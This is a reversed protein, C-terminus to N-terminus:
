RPHVGSERRSRGRAHEPRRRNGDDRRNRRAPQHAPRHYPTTSQRQSRGSTAVGGHALMLVDINEDPQMPSAVGIPFSISSADITCIAVDGGADVLAPGFEALRRVAEDAAWGKAVGGLDMRVGPPLRVARREADMEIDRWDATVSRGLSITAFSTQVLEFSRDYGATELAQLMTPNVLGDSQEAAALGLQLVDWLTRSVSIWEGNSRNVYSLESDARFRSLVQEWTEFWGPVRQLAQQAEPSESAVAAMMQCGMARFDIQQM